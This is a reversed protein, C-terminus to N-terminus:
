NVPAYRLKGGFFLIDLHITFGLCPERERPGMPTLEPCSGFGVWGLVEKLKSEVSLNANAGGLMRPKTKKQPPHHTKLADLFESVKRFGPLDYLHLLALKSIKCLGYCFWGPM